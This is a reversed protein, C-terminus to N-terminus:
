QTASKRSVPNIAYRFSCPVLWLLSISGVVLFLARWGWSAILLGGLLTGLAPGSKAGIEILSNARGREHELFNHVVFRSCAPYVVSEGVGLFLRLVFLGVITHAIGTLVTTTSSVFYGAAYIWKVGFRDVLWGAPIQGLSYTWFFASFLLGLKAPPISLEQSILPAAVSLNGRDIYNVLVSLSLLGILQWRNGDLATKLSRM